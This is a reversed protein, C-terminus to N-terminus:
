ITILCTTCMCRHLTHVTIPSIRFFFFYYYVFLCFSFFILLAVPPRSSTFCSDFRIPRAFQTSCRHYYQKNGNCRNRLLEGHVLMERLSCNWIAFLCILVREGCLRARRLGLRRGFYLVRLLVTRTCRNFTRITYACYGGGGSDSAGLAARSKRPYFM